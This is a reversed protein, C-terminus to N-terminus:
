RLTRAVRFGVNNRGRLGSRYGERCASRLDEPRGSWSGSRIVRSRCDGSTWASGDSPAGQYSDNLCDEVWELVNGHMDHLGWPNAPYAGVKTTKGVNHGFNAQEPTPPNDGWSYRTTTEARCAYEWEAESLLRYPQGTEQSLWTVYAQADEWSVCVVPHDDSQEFGPSCWDVSSSGRSMDHAAADVFAAFQGRTVPHKGMAFAKPIAVRHQPKEVEVWERETGQQIAWRREPETSGMMFKGPRIVVLEPCWPEDIDRFVELAPGVAPAPFPPKTASRGPFHPRTSPKPRYTPDLSKRARELLLREADAETSDTLDLYAFHSFFGLEGIPGIKVTVARDERGVPDRALAAWAESRAYESHLYNDSLVVLTRGARLSAQHMQEIFSGKFDWDQFFVSYGAEELIWAIWAAWKRDAQNFSVFFDRKDDASGTIPAAM